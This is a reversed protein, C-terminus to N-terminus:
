PQWRAILEDPLTTLDGAGLTICLDGPRLRSRAFEILAPRDPFWAVQRTPDADLVADVIMKGSVDPRAEEGAGYIETVVLLDAAAFADAFDGRLDATRSYRHPQFLCVIRTWSGLRAAALAARVEGPLHAYDDVFTVGGVEGRYEFRRAVGAFAALGRAVADPSAGVSLAVSAAGAANLANHIGPLPVSLEISAEPGVLVFSSGDARLDIDTLRFTAGDSTGYTPAGADHALRSAVRDDACVLCPGRVDAVFRGFAAVLASFEGYHGLHDPEVSTVAAARPTLELFTGDSEDAEIVLWEGTDWRAGTGLGSIAAGVIFSPHMGAETLVRALLASTTTKGHTGSVAIVRRTAAIAALIEARRLVPVDRRHAERVEVNDDNDAGVATSVAVLDSGVVNEAAHGVHADMGLQRLRDLVPSDKADSGTVRHGMAVLVEAIASMGAGGIGVIHVSRPRSPDLDVVGEAM